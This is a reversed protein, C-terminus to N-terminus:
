SKSISSLSLSSPIISKEYLDLDSYRVLSPFFFASSNIFLNMFVYYVPENTVNVM